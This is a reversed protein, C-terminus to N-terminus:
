SLSIKLYLKARKVFEMKKKLNLTTFNYFMKKRLLNIQKCLFCKLDYIFTKNFFIEEIDNQVLKCTMNTKKRVSLFFDISLSIVNRKSHM